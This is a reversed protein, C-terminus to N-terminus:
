QLYIGAARWIGLLNNNKNKKEPFKKFEQDLYGLFSINLTGLEGIYYYIIDSRLM